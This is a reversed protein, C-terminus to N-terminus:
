RKLLFWDGDKDIHLRIGLEATFRNVAEIVGFKIQTGDNCVPSAHIYDHGALVGGRRVKPWWSRIDADVAAETHDADIYVFDFHEDPYHTAAVVSPSRDVKVRRDLSAVHACQAELESQSYCDDNESRKGTEQWMDVAVVESADCALLERLHDGNRVGVECISRAGLGHLLNPIERRRQIRHILRQVM